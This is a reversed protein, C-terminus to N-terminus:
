GEPDVKVSRRAREPWVREAIERIPAAMAPPRPIVMVIVVMVM